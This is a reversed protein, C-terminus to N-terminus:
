SQSTGMSPEMAATMERASLVAMSRRRAMVIWAIPDADPKSALASM